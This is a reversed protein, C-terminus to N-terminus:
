TNAPAADRTKYEALWKRACGALAAQVAEDDNFAGSLAIRCVSIGTHRINAYGTRCGDFVLGAEVQMSWDLSDFVPQKDATGTPATSGNSSSHPM